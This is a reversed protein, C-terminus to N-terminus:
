VLELACHDDDSASSAAQGVIYDQANVTITDEVSLGFGTTWYVGDLAGAVGREDDQDDNRLIAPLLVYTGLGDRLDVSVHDFVEFWPWLSPGVASDADLALWQNNPHRWQGAGDGMTPSWYVGFGSSDSYKTNEFRASGGIFMPYPYESSTSYSDFFGLYAHMYRTSVKAMLLIRQANIMLWYEIDNDRLPVYVESSAGPLDDWAVDDWGTFGRLAWNWLDNSSDSYSRFGVVIAENGSLGSGELILEGDTGNAADYTSRRITWGNNNALTEIKSLLDLYDSAIANEFAM